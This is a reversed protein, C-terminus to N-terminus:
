GLQYEPQSMIMHLVLRLSQEMYTQASAIDSTGLEKDLFAILRQRVDPGPQVRMFRRTLYDVAETTNRLKQDLVMRSLNVQATDRAIPKVKEIALQSGRFSGYRTNFDEDRDANKNSEAVEGDKTEDQTATSIDM